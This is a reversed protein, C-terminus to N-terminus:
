QVVVTNDYIAKGSPIHVIMFDVKTGPQLHDMIGGYEIPTSNIDDKSCKCNFNPDNEDTCQTYEHGCYYCIGKSYAEAIDEQEAAAEKEPCYYGLTCEFCNEPKHVKGKPVEHYKVSYTTSTSIKYNDFIVDMFPSQTHHEVKMSQFESSASLRLGPTLIVDGFYHNLAGSGYEPNEKQVMMPSKVYLPQKRKDLSTGSNKFGEATFVSYHTGGYTCGDVGCNWSTRLEINDTDVADGSLHTIFLEPGSLGAMNEQNSFIEVDLVAVPAAETEGVVGTAFITVAAAIVVTVVLMLMVGIVPSIADDSKKSIM